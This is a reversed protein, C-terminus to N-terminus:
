KGGSVTCAYDGVIIQARRCVVAYHGAGAGEVDFDITEDLMGRNGRMNTVKCKDGCGAKARATENAKARVATDDSFVNAYATWICVGLLLFTFIRFLKRVGQSM